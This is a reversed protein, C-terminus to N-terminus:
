YATRMGGLALSALLPVGVIVLRSLLGVVAVCAFAVVGLMAAEVLVIERTANNMIAEQV